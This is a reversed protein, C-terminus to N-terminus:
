TLIQPVTPDFPSEHQLIPSLAALYALPDPALNWIRVMPLSGIEAAVYRENEPPLRDAAPLTVVQIALDLVATSVSDCRVIGCGRLEILGRIAEPCRAIIRGESGSLLVRDDAVLAAFAGARRAQTLCAFALASKGCGSPGLFLLGRKAIVIATGHINIEASSM